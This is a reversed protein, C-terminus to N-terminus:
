RGARELMSEIEGRNLEWAAGPAGYLEAVDDSIGAARVRSELDDRVAESAPKVSRVHELIPETSLNDEDQALLEPASAEPSLLGIPSVGGLERARSQSAMLWATLDGDAAFAVDTAKGQSTSRKTLTMTFPFGLWSRIEVGLGEAFSEVYELLGRWSDRMRRGKTAYRTLLQPMGADAWPTGDWRPYFLVVLKAKCVKAQAYPCIENPCDIEEYEKGTWRTAKHGDGTCWPGIHPPNHVRPDNKPGRYAGRDLKWANSLDGHVLVCRMFAAPHTGGKEPRGSGNFAGFAPHSARASKSDGGAPNGIWFRDTSGRVFGRGGPDKLGAMLVAGIPERPQALNPNHYIPLSSM